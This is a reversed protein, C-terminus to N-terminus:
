KTKKFISLVKQFNDKRKQKKDQKIKMKIIEKYELASIIRIDLNHIKNVYEDKKEITKTDEPIKSFILEEWDKDIKHFFVIRNLVTIIEKDTLHEINVNYEDLYEKLTKEEM